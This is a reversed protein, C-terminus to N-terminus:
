VGKQKALSDIYRTTANKVTDPDAVRRVLLTDFMDFSIVDFSDVQSKVASALDSITSFTQINM